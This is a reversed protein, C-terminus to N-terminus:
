FQPVDRDSCALRMRGHVPLVRLLVLCVSEPTCGRQTLIMSINKHFFKIEM